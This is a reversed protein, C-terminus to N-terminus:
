NPPSKIPPPSIMYIHFWDRALVSPIIHVDCEYVWCSVALSSVGAGVAPAGPGGVSARPHASCHTQTQTKRNHTHTYTHTWVRVCPCVRARVFTCLLPSDSWSTLGGVFGLFWLCVGGVVFLFMTTGACAFPAGTFTTDAMYWFLGRPRPRRGSEDM